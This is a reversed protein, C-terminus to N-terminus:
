LRVCVCLVVHQPRQPYLLGPNISRANARVLLVSLRGYVHVEAIVKSKPTNGRIALRTAVQSHRQNGPGMARWQWCYVDSAWRFAGQYMGAELMNISNPLPHM